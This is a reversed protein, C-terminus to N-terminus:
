SIGQTRLLKRVTDSPQAGRALWDRIRQATEAHLPAYREDLARLAPGAPGQAQLRAETQNFILPPREFQYFAFVLTGLLLIFFQMPVKAMANFLLSLRSQAVSKGTLFRQVQSQDCGFYGLFLFTGGFLGSWYFVRTLLGALLGLTQVALGGQIVRGHGLRVLEELQDGPGALM